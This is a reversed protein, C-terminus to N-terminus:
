RKRDSSHAANRMAHALVKPDTSLAEVTFSGTESVGDMTIASMTSHLNPHRGFDISREYNEHFIEALREDFSKINERVKSIQFASKQRKLDDASTHRNMYLDALATDNFMLLSYGACELCGRAMQFSEPVQGALSMGVAAKYASQARLFLLGAILPKPNTLHQGATSFCINIRRLISFGYQFNRANVKQNSAVLELYKLLDDPSESSGTTM